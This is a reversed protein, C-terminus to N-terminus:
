GGGTIPGPTPFIPTQPPNTVDIESQEPLDSTPAQTVFDPGLPGPTPYVPPSTPGPTPTETPILPVGFPQNTQARQELAAQADEIFDYVVPDFLADPNLQSLEVGLQAVLDRRAVITVSVSRNDPVISILSLNSIVIPRFREWYVRAAEFYWEAGLNPAILLFHYDPLSTQSM